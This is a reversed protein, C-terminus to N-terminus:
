AIGVLLPVLLAWASNNMRKLRSKVWEVANVHLRNRNDLLRYDYRKNGQKDEHGIPKHLSAM